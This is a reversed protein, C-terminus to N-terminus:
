NVLLINSNSRNTQPIDNNLSNIINKNEESILIYENTEKELIIIYNLNKKLIIKIIKENNKLLEKEFEGIPYIFLYTKNNNFQFVNGISFFHEIKKFYYILKEIDNYKLKGINKEKRLNNIKKIINEQKSSITYFCHNELIYQITPYNLPKFTLSEPCNYIDIKFGKFKEIKVYEKDIIKKKRVIGKEYFKALNENKCFFYYHIIQLIIIFFIMILMILDIILIFIFNDKSKNKIDNILKTIAIIFLVFFMFSDIYYFCELCSLDGKTGWCKRAMLYFLSIFNYVIGIILFINFANNIYNKLNLMVALIFIIKLSLSLYFIVPPGDVDIKQLTYENLEVEEKSIYFKHEISYDNLKINLKNQLEKNYQMIKLADNYKLFSFIDHLIYNSHINLIQAKNSM